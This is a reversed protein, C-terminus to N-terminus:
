YDEESVNPVQVDPDTIRGGGISLDVRQPPAQPISLVQSPVVCNISSIVCNNIRYRTLTGSAAPRTTDGFRAAAPGGIVVGNVDVFQGFLDASGGTGHIGIRGASVIRGTAAGGDILLFVPSSGADINISVAGAPAASAPGFEGPAETNPMRVQTRQQNRPLGPIDPEVLTIPEPRIGGARTDFVVAPLLGDRPRVAMVGQTAIGGPASFAVARGIVFLGGDLNMVGAADVDLTSAIFGSERLTIAGGALRISDSAALGSREVLMGGGTEILISVPDVQFDRLLVGGATLSVRRGATIKGATLRAEGGALVALDTAAIAQGSLAFGGGATFSAAGGSQVLGSLAMEAGSLAALSTGAVLTGSSDLPGGAALRVEGGGLTTGTLGLGGGATMALTGAVSIGAASQLGAGATFAANGAVALTGALTMAAGAGFAADGGISAGGTFALAGGAALRAEGTTALGGAYTIGGGATLSATGPGGSVSISGGAAVTMGQDTTLSLSGVASVPGSVLLPLVTNLALVPGTAALGALEIFANDEPLTISSGNIAFQGTVILAGAEQTVTGGSQIAVGGSGQILGDLSVSTGQLIVSAAGIGGASLAAGAALRVTAPSAIGSAALAGAAAIDVVGPAGATPLTGAAIGSATAFTNGALGLRFDGQATGTVAAVDLAGGTQRVSGGAAGPQGAVLELTGVRVSAGDRLRVDGALVIDGASRTSGDSGIRLRLAGPADLGPGGGGLRAIEAADLALTGPGAAGLTVARGPTEPLIGITGEPARIAAQIDLDDARLALSRGPALISVASGAGGDRLEMLGAGGRIAVDGGAVVGALAAIRNGPGGPDLRVAGTPFDASLMAVDLATGPNQILAGDGALTLRGVRPLLGGTALPVAGAITIDGTIGLGGLVLEAAPAANPLFALETSDLTIRGASASGAPGGLVYGISGNATAPLLTIRGAPVSITAGIALDDARLLLTGGPGIAVAGTIGLSGADSRLTAATGASLGLGLAAGSGSMGGGLAGIANGARDLSVTGGALAALTPATITGGTQLIDGGSRLGGEFGGTRLLIRGGPGATLDAAITLTPAELTLAQGASVGLALGITLPDANRLTISGATSALLGIDQVQNRAAGAGDAADLLVSGPAFARLTGASLRVGANQAIGGTAASLDVTGTARVDNLALAAAALTIDGAVPAGGPGTAQAALTGATVFTIGNGASAVLAPTANAGPLSITGAATVTTGATGIVSALGPGGTVDGATATIQVTGGQVAQQAAGALNTGPLTVATGQLAVAGGFASTVGRVELAGGTTIRVQGLAAAQVVPLSNGPGDLLISGGQAFLQAAAVTGGPAQAITGFGTAVLELRSAAAAAISVPGEIGLNPGQLRITGGQADLLAIEGASLVSAAGGLTFTGGIDALTVVSGPVPGSRVSAGPALAFDNAQLTVAAGEALIPASVTLTGSSAVQVTGGAAIGAAGGAGAGAVVQGVPASITGLAIDGGAFASIQPVSLGFGAALIDGNTHLELISPSGGGTLDLVGRLTITGSGTGAPDLPGIGAVAVDIGGIVLRSAQVRQVSAATYTAGDLGGFGGLGITTGATFPAFQVTGGPAVFAPLPPFGGPAFSVDLGDTFLRIAGGAGVVVPAGVDLNPVTGGFPGTYLDRVLLFTGGPATVVSNASASGSTIGNVGQVLGAIRNAEPLLIDGGASAALGGAWILGGTQTISPGAVPADFGPGTRLYLFSSPVEIAGELTLGPAQLLAFHGLFLNGTAAVDGVALPDGNVFVVSLAGASELRGVRNLDAPGAADGGAHLVIAGGASASLRAAAIPAGLTQEISGGGAAALSVSAGAAAIGPAAISFGTGNRFAFVEAAAEAPALSGAAGGALLRVANSAADLRVSGAPAEAVLRDAAITGAATQTVDGAGARLTLVGAANPMTLAANVAVTGGRLAATVVSPAFGTPGLVALGGAGPAASGLALNRAELRALDAGVLSLAGPDNAGIAVGRGPTRAAVDITGNLAPQGFPPFPDGAGVRGALALTDARLTVTGTAATAHVAFTEFAPVAVSLASAALSVNAGRIGDVFVLSGGPRQIAGSLDTALPGSTALVVDGGATIGARRIDNGPEALTVPGTASVGLAQARIAGGGQAVAGLSSLLVTGSPAAGGSLGLSGELTIAGAARLTPNAFEVAAGAALSLAGTTEVVLSRNAGLQAISGQLALDGAVHLAFAGNVSSPGLVGVANFEAALAPALLADGGANVRLEGATIRAGTAAQQVTGGTELTLRGTGATVPAHLALGAATRLTIDSAAGGAAQIPATVSLAQTTRFAFEGAYALSGLAGVANDAAELRIARGSALDLTAATIRGAATQTISDAAGAGSATLSVTTGAGGGTILASQLAVARGSLAIGAGAGAAEVAAAVGLAGTTTFAVGGAAAFLSRPGSAGAPIGGDALTFDGTGALAVNGTAAHAVLAVDSGGPSVLRGAAGQAIGAGALLTIAPSAGNATVTGTGLAIGGAAELRVTPAAISATGLGIGGGSVLSLGAATTLNAVFAIGSASQTGGVTTQGIRLTGATADALATAALVLTNAPAGASGVQVAFGASRPGIEITGGGAAALSGTAGVALADVRLSLTRGDPAAVGGNVTLSDAVIRVDGAGTGIVGDANAVTVAGGTLTIGAGRAQRLIFADDGTVALPGASRADLAAIANTAALAISGADTAGGLGRITLVGNDGGGGTGGLALAATQSIAGDANVALNRATITGNFAVDGAANLTLTNRQGGTGATLAGAITIAAGRLTADGDAVSGSVIRLAGNNAANLNLGTNSGTVTFALPLPSAPDAAGGAGIRVIVANPDQQVVRNSTIQFSEARLEGLLQIGTMAGGSAAIRFDVGGNVALTQAEPLVIGDVSRLLLQGDAIGSTQWRIRGNDSGLLVDGTGAVNATLLLPQNLGGVHRLIAGPAQTIGTAAQLTVGQAFASANLAISGTGATISLAGETSLPANVAVNRGATLSLDNGAGTVTLAAGVRVDRGAVLALGGNDKTVAADVVIDRAADLTVTGAFGAIAAPTVRTWTTDAGDAAGVTGGPPIPENDPIVLAITEGGPLGPPAAEGSVIINRPDLLLEGSAGSPARLDITGSSFLAGQGSLEVFGGNGGGPGGRASLAGHLETRELSNLVLMGGDGAGTADARIAAGQEVITRAAMAQNRGRGTTGVLVEGGGAGGSADVRAGGAVRVTGSAQLAVRGGREGAGGTAAVTGEVRVGGGEARLVVQGTREAMTPAEIRGTNRVLDEVLGSAAHATLLVSGGAAEIVGSNTVLAAGGEPATRVAQTVDLGILGDGALDLVFAEAAGLAVRGLRARIVGSNAVGPGVLAALGRDAVTITGHNEVRAGPRAPQDFVMRGAMFNQNTIGSASAILAGVDVQAGRAFVLGSQNVIAVGGNAQVRGAIVSPDPGVVRNLTWSGQGPQVFQVTHQSGVNFQQWDIAARETGQTITTRGPAQAIAAQGAVVQGGAPGTLAGPLSQALAQGTAIPLLATTGLLWLRHPSRRWPARAPAPPNPRPERAPRPPAGSAM